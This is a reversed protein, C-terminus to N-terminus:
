DWEMAGCRPTPCRRGLTQYRLTLYSLLLTSATSHSNPPHTFPLSFQVPNRLNFIRTLCKKIPLDDSDVSYFLPIQSHSPTRLQPFPTSASINTWIPIKCVTQHTTLITDLQPTFSTSVTYIWSMTTLSCICLASMCRYPSISIITTTLYTSSSVQVDCPYSFPLHLYTSPSAANLCPRANQVASPTGPM